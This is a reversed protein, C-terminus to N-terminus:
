PSCFVEIPKFEPDLQLLVVDNKNETVDGRASNKPSVHRRGLTEALLNVLSTKSMIAITLIHSFAAAKKLAAM